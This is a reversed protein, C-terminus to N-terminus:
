EGIQEFKYNKYSKGKLTATRVSNYNLNHEKCFQVRDPTEISESSPLIVKWYKTTQPKKGRNALSIKNKTATSHNKGYFHNKDGMFRGKMLESLHNKQSDSLKTGYNPHKEGSIGYSGSEGGLSSNYGINFAGYESILEMERALMENRSKCVEIIKWEFSNFGYKRIANDIKINKKLKSSRYKHEAIRESLSRSTCGIYVKGNDSCTAKYVCHNM